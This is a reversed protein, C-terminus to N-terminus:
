EPEKHHLKPRVRRRYDVSKWDGDWDALMRDHSILGQAIAKLREKQPCITEAFSYHLNLIEVANAADCPYIM